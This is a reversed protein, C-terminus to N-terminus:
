RPGATRRQVEMDLQREQVTMGSVCAFAAAPHQQQFGFLALAKPSEHQILHHYQQEHLLTGLGSQTTSPLLLMIDSTRTPAEAEPSYRVELACLNFLNSPYTLRSTTHFDCYPVCGMVYQSLLSQRYRAALCESGPACSAPPLTLM